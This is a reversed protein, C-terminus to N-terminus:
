HCDMCCYDVYKVDRRNGFWVPFLTSNGTAGGMFAFAVFFVCLSTGSDLASSLLYNYKVFWGRYYKKLYWQSLFTLFISVTVFSSASGPLTVLGILIMPVNVYNFGVRPYFRHLLWFPIPLLFGIFFAWLIIAYQTGPGFMNIPGIAGWTLAAANMTQFSAGNWVNSETNPDILIDRQAQIITINIIYNFICGIITGVIQHLFIMRPSVKLYHGIKLDSAMKGAQALTNYGLTKFYMNAIPKYPFLLGGILEAFVNLGFGRGTVAEILNLPLSLVLSIMIAAIVGWWPLQSENVYAVIINLVIGILFLLYYWWNPVEKYAAMLKMHIDLNETGKSKTSRITNWIDKGHYLVVHMISATVAFNIFVYTIAGYTSFHPHGIEELKGHNLTNDANLIDRQPYLKSIGTVKDLTYLSNSLFPFSKANWVDYYYLLPALIYLLFIGGYVNLQVYLPYVLPSLSSLYNWDFSLQLIGLGENVALGGFLRQFWISQRNVICFISFGSVLPFMYQPIFEYIFICAFTIYFVKARWKSEGGTTDITRILSITPLSSPWIMNAPYVIFRRLQGAIGYGVLQTALLFAISGMASPANDYYLQQVGLVMTGYASTNASSVMVYICTLEKHNFSCPNLWGGKPLYKEWAKNIMYATMLMFTTNLPIGVPKFMMLQSVSASICSLIVGLLFSRFTFVIMTPDDDMTSLENVINIDSDEETQLISPVNEKENIEETIVETIDIFEKNSGHIPNTPDSEYEKNNITRKLM